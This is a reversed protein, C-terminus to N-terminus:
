LCCRRSRGRTARARSHENDIFAVTQQRQGVMRISATTVSGGISIMPGVVRNSPGVGQDATSPPRNPRIVHGYRHDFELRLRHAAVRLDHVSLRLVPRLFHLLVSALILSGIFQVDRSPHGAIRYFGENLVGEGLWADSRHIPGIANRVEHAKRNAAHAWRWRSSRSWAPTRSPSELYGRARETARM